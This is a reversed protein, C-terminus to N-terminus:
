TALYIIVLVSIFILLIQGPWNMAIRESNAITEETNDAKSILGGSSADPFETLNRGSIDGPIIEYTSDEDM